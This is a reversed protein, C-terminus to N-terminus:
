LAHRLHPLDRIAPSRSIPTLYLSLSPSAKSYSPDSSLPRLPPLLPPPSIHALPFLPLRLPHSIISPFPLSPLPPPHAPTIHRIGRSFRRAGPCFLEDSSNCLLPGQMHSQTRTVISWLSLLVYTQVDCTHLYISSYTCSAHLIHALALFWLYTINGACCQTICGWPIYFVICRGFCLIMSIIVPHNYNCVIWWCKLSCIWLKERLM